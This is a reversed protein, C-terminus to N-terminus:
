DMSSGTKMVKVDRAALTRIRVEQIRHSREIMTLATIIKLLRFQFTNWVQNVLGLSSLLFGYFDVIKKEVVMSGIEVLSSM